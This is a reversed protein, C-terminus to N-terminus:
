VIRTDNFIKVNIKVDFILKHFEYDVFKNLEFNLFNVPFMIIGNVM